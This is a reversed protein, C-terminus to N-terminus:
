CPGYCIRSSSFSVVFRCTRGGFTYAFSVSGSGSQAVLDAIENGSSKRMLSVDSISKTKQAVSSSTSPLSSVQFNFWFQGERGQMAAETYKGGSSRVLYDHIKALRSRNMFISYGSGLQEIEHASLGLGLRNSVERVKDCNGLNRRAIDMASTKLLVQEVPSRLDSIVNLSSSNHPQFSVVQSTAALMLMVSTAPLM